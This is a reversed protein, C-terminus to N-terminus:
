APNNVVGMFLITNSQDDRIAFFFPRDVIMKFPPPPSQPMGVTIVTATAAAAETGQENVEVVASHIVADLWLPPPPAAIRDFRAREPRFAEAMGLNALMPELRIGYEFKFRPLALIGPRTRLNRLWRDWHTPTVARLFDPLGSDKAPLFVYMGVRQGRYSIRVAQFSEEEYYPYEDDQHMLPVQITQKGAALFSEMRTFYKQFQEQWAGKFYIANVAALLALSDLSDLVQPIKGDTKEAVWGNIRAVSQPEAMPIPFVEAAYNKKVQSLYASEVRLQDSYWLSNAVALELGPIRIALASKLLQLVKAIRLPRQSPDLDEGAIELVRTMAERTEGSAGEWVMLLCLMVSFPSFFVNSTERGRTLERFLKFAFRDAPSTNDAGVKSVKPGDKGSFPWIRIEPFPLRSGAPM